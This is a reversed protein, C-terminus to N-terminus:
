KALEMFSETSRNGKYKRHEQGGKFCRIDPFGRFGSLYKTKEKIAQQSKREGTIDAICFKVNKNDKMKNSAEIFKPTATKCHGCWEAKVIVIFITGPELVSPLLTGDARFDFDELWYINEEM